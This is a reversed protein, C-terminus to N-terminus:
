RRRAVLGVVAQEAVRRESSERGSSENRCGAHPSIARCAGDDRRRAGAGAGAGGSRDENEAGHESRSGAGARRRTALAAVAARIVM